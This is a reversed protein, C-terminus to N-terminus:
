NVTRFLPLTFPEFVQVLAVSADSPLQPFAAIDFTVCTPVEVRLSYNGPGAIM